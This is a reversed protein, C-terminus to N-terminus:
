RVGGDAVRVPEVGGQSMGGRLGGIRVRGPGVIVADFEHRKHNLDRVRIVDGLGGGAMARASTRIEVAGTQAFLDVLEGRSVLAVPEIDEMRLVAGMPIFSRAKQGIVRSPDAVGGGDVRDFTMRMPRIDGDSIVAGQNIARRAVLVRRNMQVHVVMPVEQVVEGDELVQAKLSLLGLEAGRTKRIGFSFAGGAFDLASQSARDFTVVAKGDFRALSQDLFHTVADRLTRAPNGETIHADTRDGTISAPGGGSQKASDRDSPPAKVALEAPRSVTCEVFGGLTLDATNVGAERLAARVLDIHIFRRGGAPPAEAVEVAPVDGYIAGDLGSLDCVDEVRVVDGVVVAERWLRLSGAQADSSPGTLVSLALLAALNVSRLSILNDHL